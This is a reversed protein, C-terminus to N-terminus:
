APPPPSEERNGREGRAVARHGRKSLADVASLTGPAIGRKSARIFAVLEATEECLAEAEIREMAETNTLGSRYLLRYAQKIKTRASLSIGARRLGIRNISEALAPRGGFTFFPPLDKNSVSLASVMALRGIRCFQHIGTFGSMLVRDGVECHGPVSAQNVFVVHSGVRCDHAVHTLAMFMNDNGIVTAEGPQTARHVQSGERFCNRDGIRTYTVTAPDFGLDQPLHGIVAHPHIQNGDGLTTHSGVFAGAWVRNDRGMVVGDEIVAYPGIRTGPGLVVDEGIVATSHIEVADSM